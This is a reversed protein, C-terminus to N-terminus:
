FFAKLKYIRKLWGEVNIPTIFELRNFYTILDYRSYGQTKDWEFIRIQPEDPDIEVYLSNNFIAMWFIYHDFASFSSYYRVDWGSDCCNDCRFARNDGDENPMIKHCYICNM